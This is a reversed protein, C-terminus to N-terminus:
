NAEVQGVPIGPGSFKPQTRLVHVDLVAKVRALSERASAKLGHISDVDRANSAVADIGHARALYIAREAHFKQSVVVLSHVGFIERARVVSDLTRLGAFDRYIRGAPVGREILANKMDSPEDYGARSNDGSVIIHRVAGAHYLDAAAEIRRNFFLNELGNSTLRSCGLVLAVDHHPVSQPDDFCRGEAAGAVLYRCVGTLIVGSLLLGALLGVARRRWRSVPRTM